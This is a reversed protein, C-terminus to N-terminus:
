TVADPILTKGRIYFYLGLALLVSYTPAVYPHKLRHGPLSWYRCGHPSEEPCKLDMGTRRISSNAAALYQFM